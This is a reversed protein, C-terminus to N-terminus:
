SPYDSILSEATLVKQRINHIENPNWNGRPYHNQKKSIELYIENGTAEPGQNV